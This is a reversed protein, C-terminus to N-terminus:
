YHFDIDMTVKKNLLVLEDLEKLTDILKDDFRYKILIEFHYVGNVLFMNATTPGLIITEKNLIIALTLTTGVINKGFFSIFYDNCEYTLKLLEDRIKLTNSFFEKNKELFWEGFKRTVYNSCVDGYEKGGMGDAVALIKFSDDEPHVLALVSDENGERLLGIDSEKQLIYNYLKEM